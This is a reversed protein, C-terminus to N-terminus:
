RSAEDIKEREIPCACRVEYVDITEILEEHNHNTHSEILSVSHFLIGRLDLLALMLSDVLVFHQLSEERSASGHASSGQYATVLHLRLNLRGRREKGGMIPQWSIPQFEIFCAPLPWADEQELFAVQENWLDIHAIPSGEMATIRETLADYLEKRVM